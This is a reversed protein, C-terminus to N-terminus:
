FADHHVLGALPLRPRAPPSEDPYGIALVGAMYFGDPVGLIRLVEDDKCLKVWCCGLGLAHAALAIHTGAIASNLAADAKLDGANWNDLVHDAFDKVDMGFAGVQVLELTRAPVSPRPDIVGLVVILLPADLIPQQHYVAGYLRRKVASDTVVVFHWPQSNARSPALRGAELLQAVLNEPVPTGKYRRISRRTRVLDMFDM